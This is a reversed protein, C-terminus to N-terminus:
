VWGLILSVMESGTGLVCGNEFILLLWLGGRKTRIIASTHHIWCPIGLKQQLKVWGLLLSVVDSGGLPVSTSNLM